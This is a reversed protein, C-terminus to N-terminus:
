AINWALERSRTAPAAVWARNIEVSVSRRLLSISIILHDRSDVRKVIGRCGRLPGHVIDVPDGVEFADFRQVELGSAVVRILSSIESEPIPEPRNGIGVIRTVGPTTVILGQATDTILCFVYGPFLPAEQQRGRRPAPKAFLPLLTQYGKHGLLSAVMREAQPRVQVAFWKSSLSHCM